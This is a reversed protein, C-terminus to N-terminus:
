RDKGRRLMDGDDGYVNVEGVDDCGCAADIEPLGQAGIIM